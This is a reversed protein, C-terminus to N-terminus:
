NEKVSFQAPEFQKNAAESERAQQLAGQPTEAEVVLKVKETLTVTYETM